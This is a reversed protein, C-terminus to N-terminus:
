YTSFCAWFAEDIIILRNHMKWRNISWKYPLSRGGEPKICLASAYHAPMLVLYLFANRSVHSMLPYIPTELRCPRRDERIEGNGVLSLSAPFESRRGELRILIASARRNSRMLYMPRLHRIITFSVKKNIGEWVQLNYKFRWLRSFGKLVEVHEMDSGHTRFYRVLLKLDKSVTMRLSSKM